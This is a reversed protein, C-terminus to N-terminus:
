KWEFESFSDDEKLTNEVAQALQKIVSQTEIRSFWDQEENAHASIECVLLGNEDKVSCNVAIAVPHDEVSVALKKETDKEANFGYQELQASLLHTVYEQTVQCSNSVANHTHKECDALFQLKRMDEDLPM